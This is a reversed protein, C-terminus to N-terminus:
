ERINLKEEIYDILEYHNGSSDYLNNIDKIMEETLEISNNEYMKVIIYYHVWHKTVKSRNVRKGITSIYEEKLFKLYEEKHSFMDWEYDWSGYMVKNIKLFYNYIMVQRIGNKRFNLIDIYFSEDYVIIDYTKNEIKFINKTRKPKYNNCVVTYDIDNVKDIDRFLQSGTEFIALIESDPDNRYVENKILEIM